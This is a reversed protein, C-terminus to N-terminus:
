VGEGPQAAFLLYMKLTIVPAYRHEEEAVRLVGRPWPSGRGVERPITTLHPSSLMEEWGLASAARLLLQQWSM